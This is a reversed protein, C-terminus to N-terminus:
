KQKAEHHNRRNEFVRDLSKNTEIHRECFMMSDFDKQTQINENYFVPKELMTNLQLIMELASTFIIEEKTDICIINGQWSGNKKFMIRLVFERSNLKETDHESILVVGRKKSGSLTIFTKWL